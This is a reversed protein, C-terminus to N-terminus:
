VDEDYDIEMLETGTVQRCSDALVSLDSSMRALLQYGDMGEVDLINDFQEQVMAAAMMDQADALSDLLQTFQFTKEQEFALNGALYNAVFSHRSYEFGLFLLTSVGLIVIWVPLEIM